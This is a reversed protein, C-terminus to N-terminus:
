SSLSQHVRPELMMSRLMEFLEMCTIFESLLKGLSDVAVRRAKNLPSSMKPLSRLTLQLRLCHSHASQLSALLNTIAKDATSTDEPPDKAFGKEILFAQQFSDVANKYATSFVKTHADLKTGLDLLDDAAKNVVVLSSKVDVKGTLKRVSALESAEKTRAQIRTSFFTLTDTSDQAFQNLVEMSSEFRQLHEFYGLEDDEGADNALASFDAESKPALHVLDRSALSKLYGSLHVRLAREFEDLTKFQHYLGGKSSAAKKFNLVKAIQEPDVNSPQIPADKFYLMITITDPNEKWRECASLFEEETGSLARKTATGFRSWLIGIFIDYDHRIQSNIVDQADVGFNPFTDTEWSVLDFMIGQSSALTKNIETIVTGVAGREEDVDSPSALFVRHVSIAQPM